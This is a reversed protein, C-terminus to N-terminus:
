MTLRGDVHSFAQEGDKVSYGDLIPVHDRSKKRRKEKKKKKM